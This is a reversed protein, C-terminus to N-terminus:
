EGFNNLSEGSLRTILWEKKLEAGISKYFDIAPKNWDLVAWEFRGCGTAIAIRALFKLMKKGYGHGRYEPLVYLDELYLGKKGLFTSFNNFYVAFAIPANNYYGIIANANSDKNLLNNKLEDETATVEHTLKEYDALHRIFNLIIHADNESAEKIIFEPM